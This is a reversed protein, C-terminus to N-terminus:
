HTNSRTNAFGHWIFAVSQGGEPLLVRCLGENDSTVTDYYEGNIQVDLLANVIPAGCEDYVIAFITPDGFQRGGYTYFSHIRHIDGYNIDGTADSKCTIPIDEDDVIIIIAKNDDIVIDSENFSEIYDCNFLPIATIINGETNKIHWLPSNLIEGVTFTKNIKQNFSLETTDTASIREKSNYM